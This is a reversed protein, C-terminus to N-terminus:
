KGETKEYMKTILLITAPRGCGVAMLRGTGSISRGPCRTFLAGSLRVTRLCVDIMRRAVEVADQWSSELGRFEPLGTEWLDTSGRVMVVDEADRSTTPIGSQQESVASLDPHRVPVHRTENFM